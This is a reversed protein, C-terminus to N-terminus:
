NNITMKRIAEAPNAAKFFGTGAVLIDAGARIIEDANDVNVGGDVELEADERGERDLLSRVRRLRALSEPIFKQGGFGPFVSMLLLRDVRSVKGALKEVPMDPNLSLGRKKGLAGIEDLIEDPNPYAELHVTLADAGAEAFVKLYKHANDMMLHVDLHMTTAKRVAELIAPGLSLNPVFHADMVDFHVIDAGSDEIKKIEDGLRLCDAALLSPAIKVTHAM